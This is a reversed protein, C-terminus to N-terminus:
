NSLRPVSWSGTRCRRPQTWRHDRVRIWLEEGMLDEVDGRDLHNRGLDCHHPLDRRHALSLAELNAQTM